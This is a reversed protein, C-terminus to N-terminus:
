LKSTRKPPIGEIKKGEFAISPARIGRFFLRMKGLFNLNTIDVIEYELNNKECVESTIEVIKTQDESLFSSSKHFHKLHQSIVKNNHGPGCYPCIKDKDVRNSDIELSYVYIKVKDKLCDGLHKM